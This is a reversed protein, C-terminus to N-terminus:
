LMSYFIIDCLFYTMGFHSIHLCFRSLSDTERFELQRVEIKWYTDELCKPIRERMLLSDASMVRGKYFATKCPMHLCGRWIVNIEVYKEREAGQEAM